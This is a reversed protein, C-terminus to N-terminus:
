VGASISQKPEEEPLMIRRIMGSFKPATRLSNLRPDVALYAMGPERERMGEQMLALAEPRNGLGLEVIAMWYNPVWKGRERLQRLEGLIQQAREIQGNLGCVYGLASMVRASQTLKSLEGISEEIRGLGALACGRLWGSWEPLATSEATHELVWAYQGEMYKALVRAEELFPASALQHAKTLEEEASAMQNAPILCALARWLHGSGSYSDREVAKQFHNEADHWRWDFFAYMMGLCLHAESSMEDLQLAMEAEARVQAWVERPRRYQLVAQLCLVMALGVHPLSWTPDAEIAEHFHETSEALSEETFKSAVFKGLSYASRARLKKEIETQLQERRQFRPVYKGKPFEIVLPDESGGNSYYERLKV